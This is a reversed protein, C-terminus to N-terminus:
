VAVIMWELGLTAEEKIFLHYINITPNIKKLFFFVSCAKQARSCLSLVSPTPSNENWKNTPEALCWGFFVLLWEPLKSMSKLLSKIGQCQLSPESQLSKLVKLICVMLYSSLDNLGFKVLWFLHVSTMNCQSINEWYEHFKTLKM